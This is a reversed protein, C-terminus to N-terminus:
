REPVAVVYIREPFPFVNSGGCSVLTLREDDSPALYALHPALEELTQRRWKVRNVSQVRYSLTSGAEDVILIQDDPRLRGLHIFVGTYGHGYKLGTLVANGMQGPLATTELHGVVDRRDARFLSEIAWDVQGTRSDRVLPVSVVSREVQIAPIRIYIPKPIPTPSPTPTFTPTVTPTPPPTATPTPTYTPTILPVPFPAIARVPLFQDQRRMWNQLGVYGLYLLGCTLALGGLALLTGIAASVGLRKGLRKIGERLMTHM